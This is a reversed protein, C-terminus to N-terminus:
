KTAKRAEDFLDQAVPIPADAPADLLKWGQQARILTEGRESVIQAGVPMNSLIVM